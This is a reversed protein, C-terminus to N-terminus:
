SHGRQQLINTFVELLRDVHHEPRFREQYRQKAAQGMARALAPNSVVIDIARALARADNIPFTLGTQGPVLWELAGGIDAVIAPLGHSMAEAGVIGFSEPTRSPLVLCTARRYHAGIDERSLKGYFSVRHRLGLKDVLALIENMFSGEGVLDLLVPFATYSLAEILVDVGKYQLIAGVFLLRLPERQDESVGIDMPPEAYLPTVHVKAPDFGHAVAQEAMYSSGTVFGAFHRRARHEAQFDSITRLAIKPFEAKRHVFGLCPYCSAASVTRTCTQRGITTYKQVRLCFLWHDHFCEVVPTTSNTLAEALQPQRTQHMYVLDANSDKVQTLVDVLPYAADFADLMAPSTPLNPDYLLTSRVGRKRFHEATGKIYHEAGGVLSAHRNIWVIHM